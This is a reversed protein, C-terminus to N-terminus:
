IAGGPSGSFLGGNRGVPPKEFYRKGKRNLDAWLRRAELLRKGFREAEHIHQSDFGGNELATMYFPRRLQLTGGKRKEPTANGTRVSVM